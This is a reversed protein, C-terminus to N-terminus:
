INKFHYLHHERQLSPKFFLDTTCSLLHIGDFHNENKHRHFLLNMNAHFGGLSKSTLGNLVNLVCFFFM